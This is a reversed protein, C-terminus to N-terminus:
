QYLLLLLVVVVLGGLIMQGVQLRKYKGENNKVLAELQGDQKIGARDISQVVEQRFNELRSEIERIRNRIEVTEQDLRDMRTALQLGSIIRILEDSSKRIHKGVEQHTEEMRKGVTRELGAMKEPLQQGNVTAILEFNSKATVELSAELKDLHGGVDAAKLQEAFAAMEMVASERIAMVQRVSEGSASEIQSLRAPFDIQGIKNFLSEASESLKIFSHYTDKLEMVRKDFHREAEQVTRVAEEVQSHAGNLYEATTRFRELEQQLQELEMNVQQVITNSM